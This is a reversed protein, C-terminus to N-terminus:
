SIKAHQNMRVQESRQIQNNSIVDCDYYKAYAVLGCLCTLTLLVMGGFLNIM